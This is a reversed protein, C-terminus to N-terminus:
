QGTGENNIKKIILKFLQVCITTVILYILAIFILPFYADYTRSRIIDGARTLDQIAIFGVIATAKVLEVFGNTYAPLARRVAQPLTITAFAKFSSFGISRAAEIEVTDITEIAGKLNQAIVAGNVMTFAAIAVLINSIDVSGFIIYYTIMLLVVAPTGYIFGCYLNALWRIFKNNRLLLFCILCAFITGFFQAAISILMTVGLGNSIMKWRNETILNREVGTKVWTIFANETKTETPLALDTRKVVLVALLKNIGDSMIASQKREETLDFSAASIDAKGSSVYLLIGGYSMDRYDMKKGLFQAFRQMTEIQFGVIENDRGLFSMPAFGSAGAVILTGNEGSLEIKPLTDPFTENERWRANMEALTGDAKIKALFENFQACIEENRCVAGDEIKYLDEPIYIVELDSYREQTKLSNVFYDPKLAADTKRLKVAELMEGFEQFQVVDKTKFIRNAEREDLNDGVQVAIRKEIFDSWQRETQGVALNALLLTIIFMFVIKMSLVRKRQPIYYDSILDSQTQPIPNILM